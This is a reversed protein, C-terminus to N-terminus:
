ACSANACWTSARSQWGLARRPSGYVQRHEVFIQQILASLRADEREHESMPREKWAYYGSDSVDLAQCMVM